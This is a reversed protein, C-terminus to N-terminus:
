LEGRQADFGGLARAVTPVGGGTSALAAFVPCLRREVGAAIARELLERVAAPGDLEVTEPRDAARTYIAGARLLRGDDRTCIVPSEAFGTVQVVIFQRGRFAVTDLTLAVAPDARRNVCALVAERSYGAVTEATIGNAQWDDPGVRDMGLVIAGGGTNALAMATRALRAKVADNSWRLAERGGTGWYELHREERGHTIFGLLASEPPTTGHM